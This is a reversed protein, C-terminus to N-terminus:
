REVVFHHREVFTSYDGSATFEIPRWHRHATSFTEAARSGTKGQVGGETWAM